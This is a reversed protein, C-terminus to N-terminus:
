LTKLHELLKYNFALAKKIPELKGLEINAKDKKDKSEKIAKEYFSIMVLDRGVEKECMDILDQKAKKILEQEM